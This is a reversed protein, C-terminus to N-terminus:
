SGGKHTKLLIYSSIIYSELSLTPQNVTSRPLSTIYNDFSRCSNHQLANQVSSYKKYELAQAWHEPTDKRRRAMISIYIINEM